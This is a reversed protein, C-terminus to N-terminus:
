NLLNTVYEVAVSNVRSNNDAKVIIVKCCDSKQSMKIILKVIFTINANLIQM